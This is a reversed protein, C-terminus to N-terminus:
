RSLDADLWDALRRACGDVSELWSRGAAADAADSVAKICRLPVGFAACTAAFSFAEMDVLHVGLAAIAAARSADAVFADGTALVVGTTPPAAPEPPAAPRLRYGRQLPGVLEEVAAYPFDHQTVYGVDLVGSYAPHLAGATGLNVVVDPRPSTALRKALAAAAVAKGVGTVLVERDRVHAVEEALAAVVLVGAVARLSTPGRRASLRWRSMVPRAGGVSQM